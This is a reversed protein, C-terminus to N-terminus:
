KKQRAEEARAAALMNMLGYNGEHCAYEIVGQGSTDKSWTIAYTWPRTYTTKDDITARYEIQTPSMRTFREIMHLSERTGNGLYEDVDKFNTVDVVLTNGEWKGVSDGMFQRISRDLHPRGDTPIIRIDHIMEYYLAVYGPGQTIQVTANYGSPTGMQPLPRAICRGWLHIDEIWRGPRIIDFLRMENAGKRSETVDNLRKQAAPTLPPVQFDPPDAVLWLRSPLADIGEYWEVPGAGTGPNIGIDLAAIRKAKLQPDERQRHFEALAARDMPDTIGKDALEKSRSMPTGNEPMTTFLGSLDPEGWPTKPPTWGPKAATQGTKAPPKTAPKSQTQALLPLSAACALMPLLLWLWRYASNKM